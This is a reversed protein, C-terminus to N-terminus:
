RIQGVFSDNSLFSLAISGTYSGSLYEQGINGNFWVYNIYLILHGSPLLLLSHKCSISAHCITYFIGFLHLLTLFHSVVTSPIFLAPMFYSLPISPNWKSLLSYLPSLVWVPFQLLVQFHHDKEDTYFARGVNSNVTVNM